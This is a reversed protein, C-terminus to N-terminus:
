ARPLDVVIRGAKDQIVDAALRAAAALTDRLLDSGDPRPGLPDTLYYVSDVLLYQCHELVREADRVSLVTESTAKTM